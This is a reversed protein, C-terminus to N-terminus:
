VMREVQKGETLVEKAKVYKEMNFPGEKIGLDEFIPPIDVDADIAEPENGLLGVFHKYPSIGAGPLM